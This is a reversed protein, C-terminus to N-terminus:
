FDANVSLGKFNKDVGIYNLVKNCLNKSLHINRDLLIELCEAVESVSIIGKDITQIYSVVPLIGFIGAACGHPVRGALRNLAM